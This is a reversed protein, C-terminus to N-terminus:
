MRIVVKGVMQGSAQYKYADVAQEFPFVRDIVPKVGSVEIARIMELFMARDGVYVGHVSGGKFMLPYPNVGGERGTLLGILMVKGGRALANISRQMTGIGGLEIV